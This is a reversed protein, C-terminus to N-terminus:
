HSNADSHSEGRDPQIIPQTVSHPHGTRDPETVTVTVAHDVPDPVADTRAHKTRAHQTRAHHHPATDAVHETHEAPQCDLEAGPRDVPEQEGVPSGM